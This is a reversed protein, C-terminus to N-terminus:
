LYFMYLYPSFSYDTSKHIFRNLSFNSACIVFCINVHSIKERQNEALHNVHCYWFFKTKCFGGVCDLFPWYARGLRGGRNRGGTTPMM